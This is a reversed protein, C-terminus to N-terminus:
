SLKCEVILSDGFRPCLKGICQLIPTFIKSKRSMHTVMGAEWHEVKFGHDTLLRQLTAFSYFAVHEPHTEEQGFLYHIWHKASFSNPTTLVLISDTSCCKHVSDLFLGPNSLHEILEGALIVDFNTPLGLTHLEYVSGHYLNNFGHARMVDLGENDIDVGYAEHALSAIHAHLHTKEEIRRKTSPSSTCGLHLIKKGKCLNLVYEVRNVLQTKPIIM